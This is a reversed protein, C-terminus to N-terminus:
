QGADRRDLMRKIGGCQRAEIIIVDNNKLQGAEYDLSGCTDNLGESNIRYGTNNIIKFYAEGSRGTIGAMARVHNRMPFAPVIEDLIVSDNQRPLRTYHNIVKVKISILKRKDETFCSLFVSSLIVLVSLATFFKISM